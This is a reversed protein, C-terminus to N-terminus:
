RSGAGGSGGHSDFCGCSSASVEKKQKKLSQEDDTPGATVAFIGLLAALFWTM